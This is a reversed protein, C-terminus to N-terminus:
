KKIQFRNSPYDFNIKFHDFFSSGFIIHEHQRGSDLHVACRCSVETSERGKEIRIGVNSMTTSIPNGAYDKAKEATSRDIELSLAEAVDLPILVFDSGSDLIATFNLRIGAQGILSVPIIPEKAWIGKGLNIHKCRYNLNM